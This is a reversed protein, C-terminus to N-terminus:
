NFNPKNNSECNNNEFSLTTFYQSKIDAQQNKLIKNWFVGGSHGRLM